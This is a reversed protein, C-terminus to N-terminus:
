RRYWCDGLAGGNPWIAFGFIRTLAQWLSEFEVALLNEVVISINEDFFQVEDIACKTSDFSKYFKSQAILQHRKWRNLRILSLKQKMTAIILRLSSFKFKKALLRHGKWGVYLSRLKELFMPGCVVEISGSIGAYDRFDM